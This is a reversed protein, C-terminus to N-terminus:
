ASPKLNNELALEALQIAGARSKAVVMFLARHCFVADSVGSVKQLEEDQL